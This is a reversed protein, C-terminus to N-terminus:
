APQSSAGSAVSGGSIEAAVRPADFLMNAGFILRAPHDRVAVGVPVISSLLGNKASSPTFPREQPVQWLAASPHVM